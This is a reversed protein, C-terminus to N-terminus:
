LHRIVDKKMEGNCNKWVNYSDSTNSNTYRYWNKGNEETDEDAKNDVSFPKGSDGTIYFHDKFRRTYLYIRLKCNVYKIQEQLGALFSDGSM